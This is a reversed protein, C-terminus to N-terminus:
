FLKPDANMETLAKELEALNEYTNKVRLKGITKIYMISSGDPWEVGLLKFFEKWDRQQNGDGEESDSSDSGGGFGGSRM